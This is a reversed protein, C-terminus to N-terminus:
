HCHCEHHDRCTSRDSQSLKGDIFAQAVEDANGSNGTFVQIGNGKLMNRAGDGIGGCILTEVGLEALLTALGGHSYQGAGVVESTVNGGDVTFVKFERTQGFHQFVEGNAYTVAFKM